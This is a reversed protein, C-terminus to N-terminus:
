HRRHTPLIIGRDWDKEWLRSLDVEQLKHFLDFVSETGKATVKLCKGFLLLRRRNRIGGRGMPFAKRKMSASQRLLYALKQPYVSRWVDDKLLLIKEGILLRGSKMVM